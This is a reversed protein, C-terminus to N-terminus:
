MGNVWVKKIEAIFMTHSTNEESYHTNTIENHYKGTFNNKDIADSYVRACELIIRAEGYAVLGDPTTVPTLGSESIKDSDRGSKSGMLTLAGRYQEPYFSLTFGEERQLFEYTYRTDRVTIIAVPKGWIHGMAGWSATMSNFSDPTGATILMWDRSLLEVINDDIEGPAIDYYNNWVPTRATGEETTAVQKGGKGSCSSILLALAVMKVVYLIKM